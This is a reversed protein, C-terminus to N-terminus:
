RLGLNLTINETGRYVGFALCGFRTDSDTNEKDFPYRKGDICGMIFGEPIHNFWAEPFLYLVYGDNDPENWQGFGVEKLTDASAENLFTISELDNSPLWGNKYRPKQKPLNFDIM